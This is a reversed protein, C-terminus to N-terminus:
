QRKVKTGKNQEVEAVLALGEGSHAARKGRSTCMGALSPTEPYPCISSM